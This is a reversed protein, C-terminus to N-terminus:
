TGAFLASTRANQRLPGGTRDSLGVQSYDGQTMKTTM